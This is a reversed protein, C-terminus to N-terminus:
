ARVGKQGSRGIGQLPLALASERLPPRSQPLVVFSSAAPLSNAPAPASSEAKHAPTPSAPTASPADVSEGTIITAAVLTGEREEHRKLVVVAKEAGLKVPVRWGMPPADLFADLKMEVLLRLCGNWISVMANLLDITTRVGLRQAARSMVHHTIFCIPRSQHRVKNAGGGKSEILTLNCAIWPREPIRDNVTIETDRVSDWGTFDHIYLEYRGRKGPYLHTKLAGAREIRQQMKRQAKPSGDSSELYARTITHWLDAQRLAILQMMEGVVRDAHKEPPLGISKIEPRM